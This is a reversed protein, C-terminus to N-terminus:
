LAWQVSVKTYQFQLTDISITPRIYATCVLLFGRLAKYGFITLQWVVTLRFSSSDVALWWRLWVSDTM